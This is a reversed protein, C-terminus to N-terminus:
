WQKGAILGDVSAYLDYGADTNNARTPKTAQQTIKNIKIKM